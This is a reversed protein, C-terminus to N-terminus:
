VCWIIAPLKRTDGLERQRDAYSPYEKGCGHKDLYGQLHALNFIYYNYYVNRKKVREKYTYLSAKIKKGKILKRIFSVPLALRSAANIVTVDQHQYLNGTVGAYCYDLRCAKGEVVQWERSFELDGRWYRRWLYKIANQRGKGGRDKYCLFTRGHPGPDGFFEFRSITDSDEVLYVPHWWRGDEHDIHVIGTGPPLPSPQPEDLPKYPM